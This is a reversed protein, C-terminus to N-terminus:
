KDELDYIWQNVGPDHWYTGEQCNFFSKRVYRSVLCGSDNRYSPNDPNPSGEIEIYKENDKFAKRLIERHAEKRLSNSVNSVSGAIEAAWPAALLAVSFLALAATAFWPAAVVEEEEQAIAEMQAHQALVLEAIGLDQLQEIELHNYGLKELEKYNM